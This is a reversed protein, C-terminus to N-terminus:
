QNKLSQLKNEFAERVRESGSNDVQKKFGMLFKETTCYGITEILADEPSMDTSPQIPKPELESVVGQEYQENFGPNIEKHAKDCLEKLTSVEAVPDGDDPIEMEFGIKEQMFPGIPYARQYFVKM